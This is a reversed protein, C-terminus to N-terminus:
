IITPLRLSLRQTEKVGPRTPQSPSSSSPPNFSQPVGLRKRTPYRPALGVRRTSVPGTSQNVQRANRPGGLTSRSLALLPLSVLGSVPMSRETRQDMTGRRTMNTPYLVHTGISRVPAFVYVSFDNVIGNGNATKMVAKAAITKEDVGSRELPWGGDM